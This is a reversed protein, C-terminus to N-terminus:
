LDVATTADGIWGGEELPIGDNRKGDPNWREKGWGLSCGDDAGDHVSRPGKGWCNFM